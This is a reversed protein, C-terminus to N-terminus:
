SNSSYYSSYNNMGGNFPARFITSADGRLRFDKRSRYGGLLYIFNKVVVAQFESLPEPLPSGIMWKGLSGDENIDAIYVNNTSIDIAGEKDYESGGLLYAKNNTVVVQSNFLAKPLPDSTTWEGLTGDEKIDAVYATNTPTNWENDGGVLYVRSKTIIHQFRSLPVPLPDYEEWEGLTGDKRILTTYVKSSSITKVYARHSFSGDMFKEFLEKLGGLLYIRDKIIFAQSNFLPEPLTDSRSWKGISGDENIPATFILNMESHWSYGGLLYIRNNAVIVQSSALPDPLPDSNTWKGINGNDDISATYVTEARFHKNYGGLIYIRNKTVVAQFNSLAEPLNGAISWKTIDTNESNNIHYQQRWPQGSHTEIM